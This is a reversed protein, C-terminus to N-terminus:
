DSGSRHIIWGSYAAFSYLAGGRIIEGMMPITMFSGHLVVMPKRTRLAQYHMQMGNIEVRDGEPGQQAVVPFMATVLALCTM